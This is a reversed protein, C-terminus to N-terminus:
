ILLTFIIAFAHVYKAFKFRSGSNFPYEVTPQPSNSSTSHSISKTTLTDLTSDHAGGHPRTTEQPSYGNNDGNNDGTDANGVPEINSTTATAAATTTPAVPTREDTSPKSTEGTDGFDSKEQSTKNEDNSKTGGPEVTTMTSSETVKPLTEPALSLTSSASSTSSTSST